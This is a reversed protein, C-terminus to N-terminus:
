KPLVWDAFTQKQQNLWDDGTPDVVLDSAIKKVRDSTQYRFHPNPDDLIDAILSAVEEPPQGEKLLGVMREKYRKSFDGYPNEKANGGGIKIDEAFETATAAPQVVSVFINWPFVTSALSASMAELAHKTACYWGLGPNSVMGAISSINIIRGSKQERMHPLVAKIVRLVGFVNVDFQQQVEEETAQDIPSLLGYGANNIVGDIRGEREIIMSVVGRITRDDTVDLRESILNEPYQSFPVPNRMTAYVKKGRKALELATLKGIGRSSGTILIVQSEM